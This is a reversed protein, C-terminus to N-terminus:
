HSTRPTKRPAVVAEDLLSFPFGGARYQDYPPLEHRLDKTFLLPHDEYPVIKFRGENSRIVQGAVWPFAASQKKLGSSLSQAIRKQAEPLYRLTSLLFVATHVVSVAWATPWLYRFGVRQRSGPDVIGHDCDMLSYLQPVLSPSTHHGDM